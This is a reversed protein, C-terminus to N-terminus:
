ETDLEADPILQEIMDTATMNIDIETGNQRLIPLADDAYVSTDTLNVYQLKKLPLLTSLYLELNQNRSLDLYEINELMTIQEPVLTLNTNALDLRQLLRVRPFLDELETDLMTFPNDSMELSTLNTLNKIQMPLSRFSNLSLNLQALNTLDGIGSPLNDIQNKTVNLSTLNKLQSVSDPLAILSNNSLTLESLANLNGFEDPLSALQNNALMLINLSSLQCFSTPLTTLLNDTLDLYELAYLEGIEDPLSTLHNANIELHTLSKLSTIPKPFAIFHNGSLRLTKINTFRDMEPPLMILNEKLEFSETTADEKLILERAAAYAKYADSLTIKKSDELIQNVRNVEKNFRRVHKNFEETSKFQDRSLNKQLDKISLNTEKSLNELISNSITQLEASAASEPTNAPPSNTVIISVAILGIIFAVGIIIQKSSVQYPSSKPMTLAGKPIRM